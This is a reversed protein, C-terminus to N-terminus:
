LEHIPPFIIETWLEKHFVLSHIKIFRKLLRCIITSQAFLDNFLQLQNMQLVLEQVHIGPDDLLLFLTLPQFSIISLNKISIEFM